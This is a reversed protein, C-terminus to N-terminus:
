SLVPLHGFAPIDFEFSRGVYRSWEQPEVGYFPRLITLDESHIETGAPIAKNPYPSRRAGVRAQQEGESTVLDSNGMMRLTTEAKLVANRLDVPALAFDSDYGQGQALTFHKEIVQCGTAVILPISDIGPTHDSFGPVYQPFYESLTYTRAINARHLPTPYELHCAMLVSYSPLGTSDVMDRIEQYTAAGTSVALQLQASIAYRIMDHYTLDGSAIKVWHLGLDHAVDVAEFDFVSPIFKINLDRCAEIVPLWEEYPYIPNAAAENQTAAEGSTHDYRSANPAFVKEPNYWQVKLAAAGAEAARRAYELAKDISKDCPGAEAWIEVM